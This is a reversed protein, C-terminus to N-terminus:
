IDATISTAYFNNVLFGIFQNHQVYYTPKLRLEKNSILPDLTKNTTIIMDENQQILQEMRLLSVLLDFQSPRLSIKSVVGFDMKRVGGHVSSLLSVGRFTDTAMNM